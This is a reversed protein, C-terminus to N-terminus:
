PCKRWIVDLTQYTLYSSAKKNLKDVSRKINDSLDINNMLGSAAKTSNKTM